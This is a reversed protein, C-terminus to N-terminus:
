NRVPTLLEPFSRSSPASIKFFKHQPALLITCLHGMISPQYLCLLIFLCCMYVSNQRECKQDRQIIYLILRICPKVPKRGHGFFSELLLIPSELNVMPTFIHTYHRAISQYRMWTTNKGVSGSVLIFNNSLIFSHTFTWTNLLFVVRQLM